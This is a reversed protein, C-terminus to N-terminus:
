LNLRDLTAKDRQGEFYKALAEEFLQSGDAAEAFLTMSSQFKLVDPFDFIQVASRNELALVAQVCVKLREGLIAHELYAKAEGLSGIAYKRAMFSRGLGSIQPFVFWMWHSVKEGAQLEELAKEFVGDQAEVFRNLNFPDTIM